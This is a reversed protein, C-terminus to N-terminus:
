KCQIAPVSKRAAKSALQMRPAMGGTSKRATQKTRQSLAQAAHPQIYGGFEAEEEGEQTEISQQEYDLLQHAFYTKRHGDARKEQLNPHSRTGDTGIYYQRRLRDAKPVTTGNTKWAKLRFDKFATKFFVSWKVGIYQLFIAQLLDEHMQITYGGNVSRREELSVHEGWSWRGLVAMRMNLVDAIEGLIVDNGLFDKLVERKENSLLDSSQLGKVVWRLTHVNFQQSSSLGSEFAAVRRRLEELGDQVDSDEEIVEEDISFLRKLYDNLEQEDVGAPEFVVKEWSARAELKKTGPLEEFDDGSDPDGETLASKESSLWETVLRGYLDAHPQSVPWVSHLFFSVQM